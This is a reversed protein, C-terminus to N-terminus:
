VTARVVRRARGEVPVAHAVLVRERRAQAYHADSPIVENTLLPCGDAVEPFRERVWV